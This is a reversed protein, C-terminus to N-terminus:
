DGPYILRFFANPMTQNFPVTWVNTGDSGTVTSWGTDSGPINTQMQLKWGTHNTPWSLILNNNNAQALINTPSMSGPAISLAASNTASGNGGTIEVAFTGVDAPSMPNITIANAVDGSLAVGNKKWTYSFPPTGSAVTSLTASDGLHVAQSVPGTATTSGSGLRFLKAQKAGLSVSWTTGSVSSLTGSWLDMATYTGSIGLRALNLNKITSSLSYNFVAVYWTAGDQRVFVDAASTGTNGEVPRFSVGARAIENIAANTLCDQALNQGTTSALDDGNLFITGSIACNILRSQNENASGGSFKMVDPDSFQYLRNNIWWGYSVAQMTSETDNISTSADCFIRRSHAYQYPFIPAISESLFMRGNNQALLYQMGQIYAQIGTMVNTDYHVGELAGHSLFDMKLYDFGRSKFYSLYYAAVTKFGPHTPDIAIGGDITQVSGNDTRLYADSWKYTSSGTIFSNSGQDATGWYVFPTWYIGAKQGNTHCCNAFQILQADSLNDWYSDLNIYVSGNDNFNNTQLRSKIFSSAATANSYSVATGYTYWSNWGFPVGGNWALKPAFAANADAYAEMVTRWDAGFGVFITPSSITNGSVLGHPMVDRTDSSTVGGYANLVNLKNNAGQFYIGTKWTDHTVSGVVLGNRTTNDYFASAEYSIATNNIPMANYSFTFSDNDFPVILARVDNYSGIDVGGSIDMVLSGIWRTPTASGIVDLRTLFSDNQDLIFVQRMTPLGSATSTVRVENNTVTWSRSTYITDTIYPNLDVGAYFGSIKLLNQWYFNARGTNLNYELRVNSNTMELLNGIQAPPLLPGGSSALVLLLSACGICFARACETFRGGKPKEGRSKRWCRKFAFHENRFKM